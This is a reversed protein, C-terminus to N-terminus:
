RLYTWELNEVANNGEHTKKLLYVEYHVKYLFSIPWNRKSGVKFASSWDSHLCCSWLLLGLFIIIPNTHPQPYIIWMSGLEESTVQGKTSNPFGLTTTPLIKGLHHASSLLLHLLASWPRLLHVTQCTLWPIDKKKLACLYKYPKGQTFRRQHQSFLSPVAPGCKPDTAVVVQYMQRQHWKIGKLATNDWHPYKVKLSAKHLSCTQKITNRLNCPTNIINM